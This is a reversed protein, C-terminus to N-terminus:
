TSIIMVPSSPCSQSYTNLLMEKYVTGELPSFLQESYDLEENLGLRGDLTYLGLM